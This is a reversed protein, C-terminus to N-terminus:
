LRGRTGTALPPALARVGMQWPWRPPNHIPFRPTGAVRELCQIHHASHSSSGRQQRHQQAQTQQERHRMRQVRSMQRLCRAPPVHPCPPLWRRYLTTALTALPMLPLCLVSATKRLMRLAVKHLRALTLLSLLLLPRRHLPSSYWRRPHHLCPFCPAKCHLRGSCNSYRHSTRLPPSSHTGHQPHGQGPTQPASASVRRKWWALVAM